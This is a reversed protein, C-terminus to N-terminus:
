LPFRRVAGRAKGDYVEKYVPNDIFDPHYLEVARYPNGKLWQAVKKGSDAARDMRLALTELSRSIMWCTHPDLNLGM